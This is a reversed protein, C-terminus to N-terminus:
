AFPNSISPVLDGLRNQLSRASFASFRKLSSELAKGDADTGTWVVYLTLDCHDPDDKLAELCTEYRIGCGGTPEGIDTLMEGNFNYSIESCENSSCFVCANDWAIGKVVGKDVDIIATLFPYVFMRPPNTMTNREVFM